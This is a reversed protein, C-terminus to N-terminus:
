DAEIGEIDNLMEEYELHKDRGCASLRAAILKKVEKYNETEPLKHLLHHGLLNKYDMQPIDAQIYHLLIRKGFVSACEHNNMNQHLASIRRSHTPIKKHMVNSLKDLFEKKTNIDKFNDDSLHTQFEDDLTSAFARIYARDPVARDEYALNVWNDVQAMHRNMTYLSVGSYKLINPQLIQANHFNGTAM